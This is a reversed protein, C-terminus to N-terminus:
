WSADAAQLVNDPANPDFRNPTVPIDVPIGAGEICHNHRDYTLATSVFLLYKPQLPITRQRGSGGGSPEGVIKVHLLGQLGLLADESASYTLPDTLFRVEGRWPRHQQTPEGIIPAASSINGYGTSVCLSGMLTKTRLFRDRFSHALILNGGTNSRLDVILRGSDQLEGFAQDLMDDIGSDDRWQEIRLYGTGTPLRSWTVLPFPLTPSPSEAWTIIEGTPKKATFTREVGPPTSLLRRGAVLPRAHAPANTRVWWGANDENLLEDGVRVDAQWAPTGPHVREFLAKDPTLWLSYTLPMLSQQRIWTHGDQLEAIWEQMAPLPDDAAAKVLPIHRACIAPWDLNRLQFSPYTWGVEDVIRTIAEDLDRAPTATISSQGKMRLTRLLNLSEYIGNLDPADAVLTQQERSLWLGPNHEGERTYIEIHPNCIAPGILFRPGEGPDEHTFRVPAGLEVVFEQPEQQILTNMGELAKADQQSMGPVVHPLVITVYEEGAFPPHPFNRSSTM